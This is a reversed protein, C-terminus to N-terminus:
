TFSRNHGGADYKLIFLPVNKELNSGQYQISLQANYEGMLKFDYIIPIIFEFYGYKNTTTIEQWRVEDKSDTVTLIVDVGPLYGFNASHEKLRNLDGDFLRTNFYITDKLPIHSRYSGTILLNVKAKETIQPPEIIDTISTLTLKFVKNDIAFYTKFLYNENGQNIAYIKLKYDPTFKTVVFSSGMQKVKADSLDFTDGFLEIFGDNITPVLKGHPTFDYYGFEIFLLGGLSEEEGIVETNQLNVIEANSNPILPVLLIPAILILFIKTDKSVHEIPPLLIKNVLGLIKKYM